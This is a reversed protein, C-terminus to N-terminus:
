EQDNSNDLNKIRGALSALEAKAASIREQLQLILPEANKSMAFFGMNNEYTALDQQLSHYKQILQDRESLQPKANRARRVTHQSPFRSVAEKYAKAVKDKEKFPVFGIEQWKKQFEALAAVDSADGKLEYANM